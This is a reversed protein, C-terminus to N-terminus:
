KLKSNKYNLWNGQQNEVSKKMKRSNSRHSWPYVSHNQLNPSILNKSMSYKEIRTGICLNLIPLSHGRHLIIWIRISQMWDRCRGHLLWLRRPILRRLRLRFIWKRWGRWSHWKVPYCFSCLMVGLSIGLLVAWEICIRILIRLVTWRYLGIWLQSTWEELHLILVSSFPTRVRLLVSTFLLERGRSSGEMSNLCVSGLNLISSVRMHLDLRSVVRSSCM